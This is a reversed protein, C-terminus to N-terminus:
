ENKGTLIRHDHLGHDPAEVGLPNTVGGPQGQYDPFKVWSDDVLTLGSLRTQTTCLQALQEADLLLAADCQCRYLDATLHLGDMTQTEKKYRLPRQALHISPAQAM